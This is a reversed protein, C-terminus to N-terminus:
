TSLYIFKTLVHLDGTDSNAKHKAASQQLLILCQFESSIVAFNSTSCWRTHAYLPQHDNFISWSTNIRPWFFICLLFFQVKRAELIGLIIASFGVHICLWALKLWPTLPWPGCSRVSCNKPRLEFNWIGTGVTNKLCVCLKLHLLGVETQFTINNLPM